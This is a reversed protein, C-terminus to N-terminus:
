AGGMLGWAGGVIRHDATFYNINYVVMMLICNALWQSLPLLESVVSWGWAGVVTALCSSLKALFTVVLSIILWMSM